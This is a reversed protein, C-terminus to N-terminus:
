CNFTFILPLPLYNIYLNLKFLYYISNSFFVTILIKIHLSYQINIM